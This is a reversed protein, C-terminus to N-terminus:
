NMILIKVKIVKDVLINNDESIFKYQHILHLIANDGEAVESLNKAFEKFTNYKSLQLQCIIDPGGLGGKKLYSYASVCRSYPNRVITVTHKDEHKIYSHKLCEHHNVYGINQFTDIFSNGGTKPIHIFLINSDIDSQFLDAYIIPISLITYIILALICVSLSLIIINKFTM